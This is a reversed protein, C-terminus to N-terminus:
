VALCLHAALDPRLEEVLEVFAQSARGRPDQSFVDVGAQQARIYATLMPVSSELVLTGHAAHLQTRVSENLGSNRGDVRTMVVGAVDLGPRHSEAVKWVTRVMSDVGRLALPSMDCPVLVSDAAVLGNLTLPGVHPPCDVVVVDYRNLVPQLRERLLGEGGRRAGIQLEAEQLAPDWCTIHLGEIGTRVAAEGISHQGSLLVTGLPLGQGQVMAHLSGSVHGQPDLDVVLVRAGFHRCLAAAVHVATTTKGVGGKHAAVALV